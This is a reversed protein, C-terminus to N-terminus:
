LRIEKIIKDAIQEPTLGDTDVTLDAAAEYIPSRKLLLSQMKEKKDGSLLPRSTDGEVRNLLTSLEARLFIIKGGTKFLKVNEERLLCGGGSSIILGSQGSVTKVVETEMNRFVEEGYTAFIDCIAGFKKVIEEDTDVLKLGLKESLVRSVTTKGSAPMGALIINM